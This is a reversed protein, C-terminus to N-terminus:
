LTASRARAANWAERITQLVLAPQDLQIWHGGSDARVHVGLRSASAVRQHGALREPSVDAASLVWLPKDALPEYEADFACNAPLAALYDGMALFNKPLCWHAKVMPWVEQPMKRVEGVLRETVAAGRGSSAARAILKPIGRAGMMLLDLAFRVVGLRALLAGWRSLIVGRSLQYRNEASLPWWEAPTLPDLLVLAAVDGPHRAAYHRLLFGGFSHGVLVFPPELGAARLLAHLEEVMNEMNRPRKTRASWGLGARDYSAVRAYARVGHHIRTWSLTSAAVGAELVVVPGAAGAVNAHLRCGAAEYIRGPPPYRRRDRWTGGAQYLVAALVVAALVLVFPTV